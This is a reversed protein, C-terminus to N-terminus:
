GPRVTGREEDLIAWRTWRPAIFGRVAEGVLRAQDLHDRWGDGRFGRVHLGGKDAHYWEVMRRAHTRTEEVREAGVSSLLMTATETTSAYAHPVISSHTVILQKDGLVADRAFLEFVSISAEDPLREKYSAHMGDLLVVTDVMAYYRPDSLVNQVAGYGASWSVLGLRRVHTAGVRRVADDVLAGFLDSRAFMERYQAAGYGPLNVSVVVGAFVNARWEEDAVMAGHFHVILDVGGDKAVADEAALYSAGDGMPTWPSSLDLRANLRAELDRELTPDARLTVPALTITAPAAATSTTPAAIPAEPIPPYNSVRIAPPAEQAPQAPGGCASTGLAALLAIFPLTPLPCLSVYGM